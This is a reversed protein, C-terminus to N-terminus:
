PPGGFLAHCKLDVVVVVPLERQHMSIEVIDDWCQLDAQPRLSSMLQQM